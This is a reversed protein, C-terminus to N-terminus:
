DKFSFKSGPIPCKGCKCGGCHPEVMVGLTQSEFFLEGKCMACAKTGYCKSVVGVSHFTKRSQDMADDGDTSVM